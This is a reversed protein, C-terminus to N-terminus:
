TAGREVPEMISYIDHQNLYDVYCLGAPSREPQAKNGFREKIRPRPTTATKAFYHQPTDKSLRAKLDQFHSVLHHAEIMDQRSKVTQTTLQMLLALMLKWPKWRQHGLVTFLDLPLKESGHPHEPNRM